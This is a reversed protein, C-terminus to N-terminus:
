ISDRLYKYEYNDLYDWVKKWEKDYKGDLTNKINEKTNTLLLSDAGVTKFFGENKWTNGSLVIVPTRAKLAAYMEHHRGTVLLKANRLTNVLEAWTQSFIDIPKSPWDIEVKGKPFKGGVYVDNFPVTREIVNDHISLDLVINSTVGLSQLAQYSLAERVEITDCRKLVEVWLPDMNQWVTNIISTPKKLSQAAEIYKLFKIANPRNNHMTGEGNLVVSDVNSVAKKIDIEENTAVTKVLDFNQNIVKLVQKCGYHYASTNNLLLTKM